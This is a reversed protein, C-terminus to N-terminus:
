PTSTDGKINIQSKPTFRGIIRKTKRGCLVRAVTVPRCRPTLTITDTHTHTPGSFNIHNDTLNYSGNIKRLPTQIIIIILKRNFPLKM